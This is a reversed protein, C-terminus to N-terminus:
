QVHMFQTQMHLTYEHRDNVKCLNLRCIYPINTDTMSCAYISDAYSSYIRTQCQVHMFQTQMHLTYEHRDNFKSLNLRCIYSINTDTVSCAYISDAYTPYIRTQCQVHMFQTQKHLTYEHRDSFMCLNLRCIYPINTDPM